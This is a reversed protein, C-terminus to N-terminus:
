AKSHLTRELAVTIGEVLCAEVDERTIHSQGLEYARETARLRIEEWATSFFKDRLGLGNADFTFIAKSDMVVREDNYQAFRANSVVALLPMRPELRSDDAM